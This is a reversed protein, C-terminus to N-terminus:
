ETEGEGAQGWHGHKKMIEIVEQAYSEDTNIVIYEPCPEKGDRKRGAQIDELDNQLLAGKIGSNVYKVFDEIKIVIFKRLGGCKM